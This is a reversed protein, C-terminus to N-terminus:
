RKDKHELQELKWNLLAVKLILKKNEYFLTSIIVSIEFLLLLICLIAVVFVANEAGYIGM